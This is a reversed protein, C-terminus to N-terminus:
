HGPKPAEPGQPALRGVKAKHDIGGIRALRNGGAGARRAAGRPMQGGLGQGLRQQRHRGIQQGPEVQM